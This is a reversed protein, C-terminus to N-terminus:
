VRCEMYLVSIGVSPFNVKEHRIEYGITSLLDITRQRLEKSHVEIIIRPRLTGLYTKGGALVGLEGGEVDIKVIDAKVKMKSDIFDDLRRVKVSISSGGISASNAYGWRGDIQMQIYGTKDTLAINMPTVYDQLNNRQINRLLLEYAKPAPEIAIVRCGYRKAIVSSYDGVNAGVDIVVSDGHPIFDASMDYDGWIIDPPYQVDYDLFVGFADFVANRRKESLLNRLGVGLYSAGLLYSFVAEFPGFLMM